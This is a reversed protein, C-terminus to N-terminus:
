KWLAEALATVLFTSYPSMPLFIKNAFVLVRGNRVADTVAIGPDSAIKRRVEDVKGQDAGAVIWEPNWRAILESNVSDYGRLGHEAGVNIGGVTKVIDHFLTEAGYSYNGGFGLIRPARAGTPRLNRAREIETRFRHAEIEGRGDEGTLYAVLRIHEEVQDLTTFMTYMRYVPVGAQDMVADFNSRDSSSLLVLGPNLRLVREPDTAVAPRYKRALGCVNSYSSKYASDSVGVIHEPPVERYLFEDISWYKSVLREPKSSLRLRSGSSDWAERPYAAAGAHVTSRGYHFADRALQLGELRPAWHGIAISLVLVCGLVAPAQWFGVLRGRM